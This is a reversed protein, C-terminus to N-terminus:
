TGGRGAARRGDWVLLVLSSIDVVRKGAALYAEEDTGAPPLVEVSAARDLLTLYRERDHGRDFKEEYGAFPVVVELAGGLELVLEAFLTDAGVALSTVGVLGPALPALCDRLERRVWEWGAPDRLRQHGSLGVRM